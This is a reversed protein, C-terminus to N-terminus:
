GRDRMEIADGHAEMAQELDRIRAVLELVVAPNATAIFAANAAVQEVSLRPCPELSAIKNDRFCTDKNPDPPADSFEARIEVYGPRGPFGVLDYWRMKAGDAARAKRELDDLDIDM